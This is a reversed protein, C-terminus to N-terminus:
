KEVPCFKMWLIYSPWLLRLNEEWLHESKDIIANFLSVRSVISQKQKLFPSPIHDPSCKFTSTYSSYVWARESFAQSLFFHLIIFLLSNRWSRFEKKFSYEWNGNCEFMFEISAIVTRMKINTPIAVHISWGTSGISLRLRWGLLDPGWALLWVQSGLLLPQNWIYLNVRLAIYIYIYSNRVIAISYHLHINLWSEYRIWDLISGCFCFFM